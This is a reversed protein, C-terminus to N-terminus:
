RRAARLATVRDVLEAKRGRYDLGAAQLENRLAACDMAGPAPLVTPAARTRSSRSSPM